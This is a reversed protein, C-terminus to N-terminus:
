GSDKVKLPKPTEPTIDILPLENIPELRAQADLMAGALSVLTHEVSVLATQPICKNLLSVFCAPHERSLWVLYKEQGVNTFAFEVAEKVSKNLKGLGRTKPKKDKLM